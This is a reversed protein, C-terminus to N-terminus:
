PCEALLLLNDHHIVDAATKIYKHGEHTACM